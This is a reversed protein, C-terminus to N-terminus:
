WKESSKGKVIKKLNGDHVYWKPKWKQYEGQSNWSLCWQRINILIVFQYQSFM